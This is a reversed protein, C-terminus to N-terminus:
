PYPIRALRTPPSSGTEVKPDCRRSKALIEGALPLGISPLARNM